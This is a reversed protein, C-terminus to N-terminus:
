PSLTEGTFYYYSAAFQDPAAFSPTERSTKAVDAFLYRRSYRNRAPGDPSVAAIQDHYRVFHGKVKQWENPRTRKKIKGRPRKRPVVDSTMHFDATDWRRIIRRKRSPFPGRRRRRRHWNPRTSGTSLRSLAASQAVFSMVLENFNRWSSSRCSITERCEQNAKRVDQGKLRM